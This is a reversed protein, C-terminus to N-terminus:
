RSHSRGPGCTDHETVVREQRECRVRGMFGCIVGGNLRPCAWTEAEPHAAVFRFQGSADADRCQREAEGQARILAAHRAAAESGSPPADSSEYFSLVGEGPAWTERTSVARTALLAVAESQHSGRPFRAVFTSLAGCDGPKKGVAEWAQREDRKPRGGFGVAGCVDSLMPQGVPATCVKRQLGDDLYFSWGAGFLLAAVGGVTMRARLRALPGRAPPVPKGELKAHVAAVVDRFFPDSRAGRWRTLDIAELEGFGLPQRIKDLMVPVLIGRAKAQGAEDRVFDGASGASTETWVVIACKAADLAAQINARWSEGTPLGRDWWLDFGENQLAQVLRAVRTEDERKYSIFLDSM